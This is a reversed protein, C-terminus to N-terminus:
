EDRGMIEKVSDRGNLHIKYLKKAGSEGSKYIYQDDALKNMERNPNSINIGAQDLLDAVDQSSFQEVEGSKSLYYAGLLALEAQTLDRVPFNILWEGVEDPLDMESNSTEGTGNGHVSSAAKDSSQSVSRYSHKAIVAAIKELTEPEDLIENIFDESGVVEIERTSLNVRISSTESAM